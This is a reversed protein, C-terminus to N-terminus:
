EQLNVLKIAYEENKNIIVGKLKITKSGIAKWIDLSRDWVFYIDNIKKPREIRAVLTDQMIAYSTIKRLTLNRFSTDSEFIDISALEYHSYPSTRYKVTRSDLMQFDHAQTSNRTPVCSGFSMAIFIYFHTRM